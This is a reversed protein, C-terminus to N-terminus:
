LPYFFTDGREMIMQCDGGQGASIVSYLSASIWYSSLVQLGTKRHLQWGTIGTSGLSSPSGTTGFLSFHGWVDGSLSHFLIHHICLHTSNSHVIYSEVTVRSSIHQVAFDQTSEAAKPDWCLPSIAIWSSNVDLHFSHIVLEHPWVGGYFRSLLQWKNCADSVLCTQFHVLPFNM